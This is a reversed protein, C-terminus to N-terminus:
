QLLINMKKKQWCGNAKLWVGFTVHIKVKLSM